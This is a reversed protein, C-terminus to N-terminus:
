VLAAAVVVVAAVAMRHLASQAAAAAGSNAPLSPLSGNPTSAGTEALQTPLGPHPPAAVSRGMHCALLHAALAPSATGSCRMRALGGSLRKPAATPPGSGLSAAPQGAAVSGLGTGGAPMVPPDDLHRGEAAQVLPLAQPAPAMAAPTSPQPSPAMLPTPAPALAGPTSSLPAPPMSSVLVVPADATSGLLTINSTSALSNFAPQAPSPSPQSAHAPPPPVPMPPPLPPPSASRLPPPPSPLAPPKPPPFCFALGADLQALQTASAGFTAAASRLCAAGYQPLSPLHCSFSQARIQSLRM